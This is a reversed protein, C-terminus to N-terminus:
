KKLTEADVVSLPIGAGTPAYTAQAQESVNEWDADDEIETFVPIPAEGLKTPRAVLRKAAAYYQKEAPEDPNYNMLTCDAQWLQAGSEKLYVLVRYDAKWVYKFAPENTAPDIEPTKGDSQYKVVQIKDTGCGVVRIKGIQNKQFRIGLEPVYVNAIFGM